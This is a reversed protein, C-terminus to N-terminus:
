IVGGVVDGMYADKQAVVTKDMGGGGRAHDDGGEIIGPPVLPKNKSGTEELLDIYLEDM